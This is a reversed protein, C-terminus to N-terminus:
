GQLSNMFDFFEIFEQVFDGLIVIHHNALSKELFYDVSEDLVVRIQTRCGKDNVLNEIITGGSVWYESLDEGFVKLVTVDSLPLKGRIGVSLGTEFHNTIEYDETISTPITCHAFVATNLEQDVSAVNAMFSPTGTLMKALLMTFTAPIDGECGAVVDKLGNLLSLTYCGSIKTEQLLAFCQVTVATWKKKAILEYIRQAVVGAKEVAEYTISQYRAGLRFSDIHKTFDDDITRPLKGIVEAIPVQEIEVGWKKTVKKPEIYSAILWASPEGIVGIKTKQLIEKIEYCKSWRTLLNHLQGLSGHVIRTAIKQQQLYARIEMAAPLSNREDYSFLIIPTKLKASEIFQSVERETGGTGIFIFTPENKPIQEEINLIRVNDQELMRLVENSFGELSVLSFFPIINLPM